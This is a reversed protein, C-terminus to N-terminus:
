AASLRAQGKKKMLFLIGVIVVAAIGAKKMDFGSAIQPIAAGEESPQVGEESSVIEAAQAPSAGAEEMDDIQEEAPITVGAKNPGSRGIVMGDSAQKEYSIQEELAAVEKQVAREENMGAASAIATAEQIDRETVAGGSKAKAKAIAGQYAKTKAAAVRTKAQAKTNDLRKKSMSLVGPAKPVAAKVAAVKQGLAAKHGAIRKDLDLLQAKTLGPKKKWAELDRIAKERSAKSLPAPAAPKKVAAVAKKIPAAAVKKIPAAAVKKVPASAMTKIGLAAKHGAIRKDLDLQQAKTLGPKKKWAELDRIAKERQAKSLSAPAAPKAVPKVLPKGAVKVSSVKAVTKAMPSGKKLTVKSLISPKKAAVIPKKAAVAPKSPAALAAKHGAIRKDLDLQQAKTLGPKKKWATLDAIAKERQARTLTKPAEGFGYLTYGSMSEETEEESTAPAFEDFAAGEESATIEEETTGPAIPEVEQYEEYAPEEYVPLAEYVPAPRSPMAQPKKKVKAAVKKAVSGVQKQRATPVPIAAKVQAKTKKATAIGSKISGPVFGSATSKASQVIRESQGGTAYSLGQRALGKVGGQKIAKATGIAKFAIDSTGGTVSSLAGKALGKLGAKPNRALSAAQFVLESQGGTVIGLGVRGLNRTIPNKVVAKTAKFAGKGVLASGKATVKATKAVAKATGKVVKGTVKATGKVVKGVGKAVGKIGKGIGKFIGGVSFGLHSDDEGYITLGFNEDGYINTGLNGDSSTELSVKYEDLWRKLTAEDETKLRTILRSKEAKEYSNLPSPKNMLSLLRRALKGRREERTAILEPSRERAKSVNLSKQSEIQQKRILGRISLKDNPTSAAQILESTDGFHYGRLYGM